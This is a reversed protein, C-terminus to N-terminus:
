INKKIFKLKIFVTKPKNILLQKLYISNKLNFIFLHNYIKLQFHEQAKKNVHPSKLFTVKKYKNPFTISSYKIKYKDLLVKVLKIYYLLSLKNLSKLKLYTKIIM